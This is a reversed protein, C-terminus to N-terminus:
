ALDREFAKELRLRGDGGREADDLRTKEIRLQAHRGEFRLTAVQNEFWPTDHAFRWRIPPAPVGAGRAMSRGLLAGARSWAGHVARREHDDLPNRLPSCTAQYVKSRVGAGSRFGVEALYAHHVDGSLTLITAPPEGRHGAGVEELLECMGEFSRRFAAWHELDLGQRLKEGLTAGLPGWAGDCIAENWAELDHMGPALLLPLSTGILLHEFGGTAHETIWRWEEADVMSRQGPTLVRGARSDVMVLRVPGIDRCFSWRTGSVERDARYGFERLIELADGGERGHCGAVRRFLADEALERPALNGLHQYLWYSAFGGIIREDWWPKARMEAVWAQSTNWDDHVDHDDFIMATPVTSLLWRVYPESWSERYLRTYEEFDAISEGPPVSVDRRSHIFERTQPSVEDAYVQDGLLVLAHPWEEAPREQMRMAAARLADVERGRADDEKPLSYPAEHPVCVRCSGFMIEVPGGDRHTRIVSDPFPSDDLPWAKEGDLHVEYPTSTAPELGEVVVLAYHHEGVAFTRARHGLVEVECPADVEVWVTANTEGVYRQLPGLVLRPGAMM